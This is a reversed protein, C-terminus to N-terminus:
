SSQIICCSWFNSVGVAACTSHKEFLRRTTRSDCERVPLPSAPRLRCDSRKAGPHEMRSGPAAVTTRYSSFCRRKRSGCSTWYSRMNMAEYGRLTRRATNFSHFGMGPLTLRKIFRHDQEVRNNLYKNQRFEVSEPLGEEAKMQDIAKPYAANKDVNIVRPEQTHTAQLTKRFFRKASSRM